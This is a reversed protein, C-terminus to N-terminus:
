VSPPVRMTSPSVKAPHLTIARDRWPLISRMNPGTTVVSSTRGERTGSSVGVVSSFHSGHNFCQREKTRMTWHGSILLRTNKLIRFLSSSHAQARDLGACMHLQRECTLPGHDTDLVPQPEGHLVHVTVSPIQTIFTSVMGGCKPCEAKGRAMINGGSPNMIVKVCGHTKIATVVDALDQLSQLVTSCICRRYRWIPTLTTNVMPIM